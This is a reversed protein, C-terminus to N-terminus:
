AKIVLEGGKSTDVKVTQGEKIKGDLLKLAISDVLEHQILRKLPRAGFVPDYGREALYVMAGRTMELKIKKDALRNKLAELQINVIAELQDEGLRHFIVIDDIRNLFEPRFFQRLERQLEDKLDTDSKGSEMIKQSAINSTMILVTNKFDVVRGQSDTLRGDDLVQLLVNFVDAHAKEVEDFLVVSYPRRRVAETLQGGEDYGVYGPPAGILRAVSHKEMYESMDIRIMMKEDDFLYSALAKALETKGVGTPGVFLFSGLPRNPDALGSRSRRIANAVAAVAEDQGVVRKKLNDEMKILKETEGEMMKSVPIGTWKAVVEAIGQETVEEKLLGGKAQVQALKDELEKAQKQLKPAKDYRIEAVKDLKGEREYHTEQLKLADLDERVKHLDQIVKKESQWRAKLGSSNEKLNAMEKELRALREKSAEDKEKQLAQKEIELQRVKREVEDLEMPMSDIEIRLKSAAEDVLDIAKDPLFRNTIYRNSLVAAAVLASDQIRVGHHLEYREKLGRLISITDAVSPEGVYVQQFRRELAADKEIYKRYEDLTTAGIARLEGRALAPKLMNSADM